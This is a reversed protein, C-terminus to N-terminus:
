FANYWNLLFPFGFSKSCSLSSSIPVQLLRNVPILLLFLMTWIVCFFLITFFDNKDGLVQQYSIEEKKWVAIVLFDNRDYLSNHNYKIIKM